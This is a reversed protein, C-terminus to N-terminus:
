ELSAIVSIEIEVDKPLGSVEVTERAPYKGNFYSAYVANIKAFDDMSKIFITTKVVHGLTYDAADLIAEINKMVRHTAAEIGGIIVTGTEPDIPIQGSIFLLNGVKVAQSYPGIAAPAKNTQIISKAM